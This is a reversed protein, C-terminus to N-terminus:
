ALTTETMSMVLRCFYDDLLQVRVDFVSQQITEILDYEQKVCLMIFLSWLMRQRDNTLEEKLASIDKGLQEEFILLEVEEHMQKLLRLNLDFMTMFKQSYDPDDQYYINRYQYFKLYIEEALPKGMGTLAAIEDANTQMFKDFTNLGAFLIKNLIKDTVGSIQKLVFKVILIEKKDELDQESVVLAFTKPQLETLKQYAMIIQQAAQQEFHDRNQQEALAKDNMVLSEMYKVADSIQQYGMKASAGSLLSFIPEIIEIWELSTNREAEWNRYLERIYDKLPKVYALAINDFLDRIMADEAETLGSSEEVGFVGSDMGVGSGLINDLSGFVDDLM